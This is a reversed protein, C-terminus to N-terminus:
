VQRFFSEFFLLDQKHDTLLHSSNKIEVKKIKIGSVHKHDWSDDFNLLLYRMKHEGFPGKRIALARESDNVEVVVYMCQSTGDELSQYAEELDFRKM